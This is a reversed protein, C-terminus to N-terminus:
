IATVNLGAADSRTSNLVTSETAPEQDDPLANLKSEFAEEVLRADASTLKNKAPLSRHAWGSLEEAGTMNAM